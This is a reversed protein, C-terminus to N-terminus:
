ASLSTIKVKTLQQRHGKLRKYNKRKKFKFVIQKKGKFQELVEGTVKANALEDEKILIKSGDCIFLVDFDVTDGVEANLKEIDIVDGESVKYQKGGTKIVAYM